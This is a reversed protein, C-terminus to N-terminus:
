RGPTYPSPGPFTPRSPTSSSPFGPRPPPQQGNNRLIENIREEQRRRNEANIRNIDDVSPGRYSSDPPTYSPQRYTPTYSRSPSSSKNAQNAVVGIIGALISVVTIVIGLTNDSKPASPQSAHRRSRRAPPPFSEESPPAPPTPGASGSDANLMRDAAFSDTATLHHPDQASDREEIHKNGAQENGSGSRPQKVHLYAGCYRCQPAAQIECAEFHNVSDCHRCKVRTAM